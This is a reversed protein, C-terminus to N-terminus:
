EINTLMAGLQAMVSTEGENGAFGGLALQVKRFQKSQVMEEISKRMTYRIVTVAKEQDLRLLRGIAQKEVAPNWQPELIHIRNAVTLGNLGVSGTSFTMLLVRFASRSQFDTLAQHRKRPTVDGDIRVSRIHKEDLAKEVIDLTKKWFSLHYDNVLAVIKSPLSQSPNSQSDSSGDGRIDHHNHCLPCMNKDSGRYDTRYQAVCEDLLRSTFMVDCSCYSCIAQGYQQFISLVEDSQTKSGTPNLVDGEPIGDVGNNCFMRLRLMAEMVQHHSRKQNKSGEPLLLAKRCLLELSRYQEREQSSFDLERIDTTYGLSPIIARTRRLCISGLLLRLNEFELGQPDRTSGSRVIYKRFIASEELIPVKLFKVISGLDDLCNQIPTGTLCWRSRSSIDNVSHFQKNSSNRIIHAEDLVLRFWRKRYLMGSRSRHQAMVTGYTTMIIDHSPLDSEKEHREPGHYKITRLTGYEIHKDIETMWTNLLLESPVIVITSKACDNGSSAFISAQKMSLVISTLITLTKGLGMDDALIGGVCDSASESKAGTMTHQFYDNGDDWTKREWLSRETLGADAERRSIFDLGTKQHSLLKAIIRRDEQVESLYDHNPVTNFFSDSDDLIPHAVLVSSPEHIEVNSNEMSDSEWDKSM